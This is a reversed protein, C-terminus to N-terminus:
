REKPFRGWNQQRGEKESNRLIFRQVKLESREHVM